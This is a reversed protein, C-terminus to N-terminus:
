QLPMLLLIMCITIMNILQKKRRRRKRKEAILAKQERLIADYQTNQEKEVTLTSNVDNVLVVENTNQEYSLKVSNYCLVNWKAVCFSLFISEQFDDRIVFCDVWLVTSQKPFIKNPSM